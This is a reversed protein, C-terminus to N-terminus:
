DLVAVAEFEVLVDPSFLVEVGVLTTPRQPIEVGLRVAARMLGEGLAAVLEPKWRVVYITMKAVDDFTAGVAELATAVNVLAQETQSALDPGALRGEADQGIQGALYVTRSGAAISVQVHTAPAVLGPPNLTQVSM